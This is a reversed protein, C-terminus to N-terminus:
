PRLLPSSWAFAKIEIRGCIQMIGMLGCINDANKIRMKGTPTDASGCTRMIGWALVCRRVSYSCVPIWYWYWTHIFVANNTFATFYDGYVAHVFLYYESYSVSFCASPVVIYEWFGWVRSMLKSMFEVCRFLFMGLMGTFLYFEVNWLHLKSYQVNRNHVCTFIFLLLSRSNSRCMHLASDYWRYNGNQFPLIEGGVSFNGLIRMQWIWLKWPYVRRLFKDSCGGPM